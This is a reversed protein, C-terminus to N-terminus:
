RRVLWWLDAGDCRVLGREAMEKLSDEIGNPYSLGKRMGISGASLGDEEALEDLISQEFEDVIM